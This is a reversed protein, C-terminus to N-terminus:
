NLNLFRNSLFKVAADVDFEDGGVMVLPVSKTSLVDLMGNMVSRIEKKKEKKINKRSRIKEKRERLQMVDDYSVKFNPYLIGSNLTRDPWLPIGKTMLIHCNDYSMNELLIGMFKFNKRFIEDKGLSNAVLMESLYMDINYKLENRYMVLICFTIMRMTKPVNVYKVRTPIGFIEDNIHTKFHTFNPYKKLVENKDKPDDLNNEIKFVSEIKKIFDM